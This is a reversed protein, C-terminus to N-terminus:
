RGAGDCLGFRLDRCDQQLAVLYGIWRLRIELQLALLVDEVLGVRDRGRQGEHEASDGADGQNDAPDSDHVDHQDRDRLPRALDSDALRNPRPPSVCNKISAMNRLPSPPASPIARPAAKATSAGCIGAIALELKGGGTTETGETSSAKPTDTPMPNNKPM